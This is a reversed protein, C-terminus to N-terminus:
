LPRSRGGNEDEVTTKADAVSRKARIANFRANEALRAAKKALNALNQSSDRNEETKEREKLAARGKFLPPADFEATKPRVQRNKATSGPTGALISGWTFGLASNLRKLPM